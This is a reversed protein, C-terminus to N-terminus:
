GGTQEHQGAILRHALEMRPVDVGARRAREVLDGFVTDAETPAGAIVDQAMSSFSAPGGAAARAGTVIEDVVIARERSLRSEVPMGDFDRVDIGEARAIGAAEDLLSLYAEVLHPRTFMVNGPLRSLAGVGFVGVANVCKMWILSRISAADILTSPIQAAQLATVLRAPEPGTTERAGVYTHGHGSVVTTQPSEVRANLTSAMLLLRDDGFAHALLDDKVVGNQLGCVWQVSRGARHLADSTTAVAEALQPGKTTFVIGSGDAIQGADSVIGLSGPTGPGAVLPVTAELVGTVDISGQDLLAAATRDRTLLTTPHGSASLLVGWARGMAGAGMMVIPTM